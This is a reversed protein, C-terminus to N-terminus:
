AGEQGGALLADEAGLFEGGCVCVCVCVCVGPLRIDRKKKLYGAM